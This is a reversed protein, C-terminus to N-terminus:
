RTQVKHPQQGMPALLMATLAQGSSKIAEKDALKSVCLCVATSDADPAGVSRLAEAPDRQFLERFSDGSGLQDLLKAAVHVPLGPAVKREFSTVNEAEQTPSNRDLM